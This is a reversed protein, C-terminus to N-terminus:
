AGTAVYINKFGAEKLLDIVKMLIEVSISNKAKLLISEGFVMTTEKDFIKKLQAFTVTQGSVFITKDNLITITQNKRFAALQSLTKPLAVTSGSASILPLVVSLFFLISFFNLFVFLYFYRPEKYIAPRRSFKM